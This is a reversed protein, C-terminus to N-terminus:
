LLVGVPVIARKAEVKALTQLVLDVVLEDFPTDWGLKIFKYEYCGPDVVTEGMTALCPFILWLALDVLLRKGLSLGQLAWM